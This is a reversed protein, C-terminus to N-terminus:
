EQNRRHSLTEDLAAMLSALKPVAASTVARWPLGDLAAAVNPSLALATVRHSAEAM